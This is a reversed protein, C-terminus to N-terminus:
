IVRYIELNDIFIDIQNSAYTFYDKMMLACLYIEKGNTYSYNNDDTITLSNLV